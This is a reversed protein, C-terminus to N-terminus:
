IIFTILSVPDGQESLRFRHSYCQNRRNFIDMYNVLLVHLPNCTLEGSQMIIVTYPIAHNVLKIMDSCTRHKMLKEITCQFTNKRIATLLM